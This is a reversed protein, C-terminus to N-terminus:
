QGAWNLVGLEAYKGLFHALNVKESAWFPASPDPAFCLFNINFLSRHRIFGWSQDLFKPNPPHVPSLGCLFFFSLVPLFESFTLLFYVVALNSM